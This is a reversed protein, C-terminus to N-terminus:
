IADAIEAKTASSMVDIGHDSAFALLEDKTPM